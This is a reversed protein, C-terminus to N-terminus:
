RVSAPPRVCVIQTKAALKGLQKLYAARADTCDKEDVYGAHTFVHRPGDPAAALISMLWNGKVEHAQAATALLLSALVLFRM